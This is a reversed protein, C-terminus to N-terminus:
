RTFELWVSPRKGRETTDRRSKLDLHQTLSAIETETLGPQSGGAQVEPIVFAYLLYTGGMKLLGPLHQLYAKRGSPPLNHLCGMDLVLHFKGHVYKLQTVDDVAFEAEVGARRAKKQALNIARPAFDVGQAQWGRNALTIVNTGTGCGLDLARGPPHENLFAMLEPPSVGSDWPPRRFYWLHFALRPLWTRLVNM